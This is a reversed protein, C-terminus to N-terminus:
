SLSGMLIGISKDEPPGPVSCHPPIGRGRERDKSKGGRQTSAKNKRNHVPKRRAPHSYHPALLCAFPSMAVMLKQSVEDWSLAQCFLLIIERKGLAGCHHFTTTPPLGLLTGSTTWLPPWELWPDVRGPDCALGIVAPLPPVRTPGTIPPELQVCYIPTPNRSPFFPYPASLVGSTWRIGIIVGHYLCHIVSCSGSLTHSRQSGPLPEM